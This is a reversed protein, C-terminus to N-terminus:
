ARWRSSIYCACTYWYQLLFDASETAEQVIKSFDSAM